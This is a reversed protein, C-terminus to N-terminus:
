KMLSPKIHINVALLRMSLIHATFLQSAHGLPGSPFRAKCTIYPRAMDRAGQLQGRNCDVDYGSIHDSM